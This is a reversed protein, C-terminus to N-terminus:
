SAHLLGALPPEAASGEDRLPHISPLVTTPGHAHDIQFDITANHGDLPLRWARPAPVCSSQASETPGMYVLFRLVYLQGAHEVLAIADLIYISVPDAHIPPLIAEHGMTFPVKGRLAVTESIGVDGIVTASSSHRDQQLRRVPALVHVTVYPTRNRRSLALRTVSQVVQKSWQQVCFRIRRQSVANTPVESDQEHVGDRELGRQPPDM